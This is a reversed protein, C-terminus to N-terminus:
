KQKFITDKLGVPNKFWGAPKMIKDDEKRKFTVYGGSQHMYYGDPGLEQNFQQRTEDIKGQFEVPIMKTFNSDMVKNIAAIIDFDDYVGYIQSLANWPTLQGVMNNYSMSKIHVLSMDYLPCQGNSTMYHLFASTVFIDAIDDIIAGLKDESTEFVTRCNLELEGIESEVYGAQQDIKTVSWKTNGAVTNWLAVRNYAQIFDMQTKNM